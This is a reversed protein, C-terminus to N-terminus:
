LSVREVAILLPERINNCLPEGIALDLQLRLSLGVGLFVCPRWSRRFTRKRRM